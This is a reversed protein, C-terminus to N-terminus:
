SIREEVDVDFDAMMLGESRKPEIRNLLELHGSGKRTKVVGRLL